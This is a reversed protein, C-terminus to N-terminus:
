RHLLSNSNTIYLELDHSHFLFGFNLISLSSEGFAQQTIFSFTIKCDKKLSHLRICTQQWYRGRRTGDTSLSRIVDRTTAITKNLLLLVEVALINILWNSVCIWFTFTKKGEYRLLRIWDSFLFFKLNRSDPCVEGRRTTTATRSPYSQTKLIHLVLSMQDSQRWRNSVMEGKLQCAIPFFFSSFIEPFRRRKWHRPLSHFFYILFFFELFDAM